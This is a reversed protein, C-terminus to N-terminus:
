HWIWSEWQPFRVGINWSYKPLDVFKEALGKVNLIYVLARLKRNDEEEFDMNRWCIHSNPSNAYLICSGQNM